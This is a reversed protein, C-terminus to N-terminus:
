LGSDDPSWTAPPAEPLANARIMGAYWAASRKPWRRQTAYDVFVLGFRRAYGWAWEFNDILSWVFYGRVDVGAARAAHVARLHADLFVCREEDDVEGEPDVYDDFAAGNETIYVPLTPYDRALRVLVETLAEPSIGWGM